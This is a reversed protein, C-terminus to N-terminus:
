STTTGDAAVCAGYAEITLVGPLADALVQVTVGAKTATFDVVTASAQNPNSAVKWQRSELTARATNATPTAGAMTINVGYGWRQPWQRVSGVACPEADDFSSCPAAQVALGKVNSCEPYAVSSPAGIGAALSNVITHLDTTSKSLAAQGKATDGLAAAAAAGSGGSPGSGSCGSLMLGVVVAGLAARASRLTHM